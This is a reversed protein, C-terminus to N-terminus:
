LSNGKKVHSQISESRKFYWLLAFLPILSVVFFIPGGQHHLPGDIIGPDVHVTLWSIVTIRLANRALGLPLTAVALALRKWGNKLFMKGAVLSTIFLVLTSRVGSCEEAVHITLGPLQFSLRDRLVPLGTMRLTWDAVEASGWQLLVSAANTVAMPLPVFFFLFAIAFGHAALPKWGFVHVAASLMLLLYALIGAWLHETSPMRTRLVLYVAGLIIGLAACAMAGLRRRESHVGRSAVRRGDVVRWIYVSVFPILLLHSHLESGLSLRVLEFLPVSFAATVLAALVLFLGKGFPLLSNPTPRSPTRASIDTNDTPSM